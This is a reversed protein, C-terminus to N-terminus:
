GADEPKIVRPPGMLVPQFVVAALMTCALSLALLKGMSSTGPHSSFWLSGFATATALASYFVARTLPSQLLGTQGARWAMIYYIKFAVGVGLLLPLAIINAYNLKLGLLVCVELTVVGALILPVLTLLVDGLRRLTIWLLITISLLAWLGAHIFASVITYSSELISVPAGTASPEVALVAKAFDRLVDNDNADGKPVAQARAKGDPSLWERKVEPPISQLSVTDAKLAKRLDDLEIKLPTILDKEAKLRSAEDAKALRVLVGALEKAPESGGNVEASQQEINAATNNLAEVREQDTPAPRVRTPNLARNLSTAAGKILPLKQDQEEPVFSNLTLTRLVQPLASLRNAKAQAEDLSSAMLEVSNANTDKDAALELYSAVSEVNQNRLNMPNFDFELFYLLPLGGIAVLLTVVIVPIRYREMFNDVPALSKYGLPETEGPPNFLALLAPLVTVSTLFAIIMGVGAVQGLESLGRYETPLFSLFGAATAAAALTLPAGARAAASRLATRLNDDAHREARYRVSFQIGFDVGIGVFLVAFAVSILNFAGTMMLGLAATVVLGVALSIFVAVIIRVSHLALWLIILVALVTVTHNLLAGEKVTGFEEDAIRVPGTLRVRVPSDSAANTERAAARIIETAKGGPELAKFDLMPEVEIIRRLDRPKPDEGTLLGHWSFDAPRNELVNTLSTSLAKFSTALDEWKLEGAQIGSLELGILDMVGRLSPDGTLAAFAPRAKTMQGTIRTVEDKSLFLLGNQEFFPEGGLVRINKLLEQHKQLREVLDAAADKTREPTKGEVVILISDYRQPFYKEFAIERQRFPVDPSILKSVDSNIAFNRATYATALGAIILGAALVSWPHRTCFNVLAVIIRKLM